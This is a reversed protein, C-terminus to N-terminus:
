FIIKVAITKKKVIKHLTKLLKLFKRLKMSKKVIFM